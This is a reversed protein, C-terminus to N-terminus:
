PVTLPEEGPDMGPEPYEEAEDPLLDLEDLEDDDDLWEIPEDDPDPRERSSRPRFTRAELSPRV